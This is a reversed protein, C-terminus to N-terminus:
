GDAHREIWAQIVQEQQESSAGAIELTDGDMQVKISQHQRNGLWSKIVGVVKALTESSRAFEVILAGVAVIEFARTGPPAEGATAKTVRDVDLDSLERSLGEALRDLEEPSADQEHIEISAAARDTDVRGERRNSAADYVEGTTHYLPSLAGFAKWHL